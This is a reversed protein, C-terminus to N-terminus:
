PACIQAFAGLDRRKLTTPLGLREAQACVTADGDFEVDFVARGAASFPALEDCRQEAICNFHVAFDFADALASAQPWDSSLGASLGLRHAREALWRNYALQDAATLPHGSDNLHADLSSLLVGAFGKDAALQLRADQMARVSDDTIDLWAENPYSALPAGVAAPALTDVDPRWPERTGASVYAVVVRGLAVLRGVDAADTEFLDVVFVDAPVTDDIAGVLQYQLRMGPRIPGVTASVDGGDGMDGGDLAGGGDPQARVWLPGERASCALLPLLMLLSWRTM